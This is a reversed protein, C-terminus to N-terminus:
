YIIRKVKQDFDDVKWLAKQYIQEKFCLSLTYGNYKKLIRDYFGGGFGLRNNDLSFALGPVILLDIDSINAKFTFLPEYIDFSSKKFKTDETCNIFVMEEKSIVKPVFVEKNDLFAKRIIPRTDIEFKLSITIAISDSNKWELSNFLKKYLKHEYYSKHNKNKLLGIIQKRINKKDM